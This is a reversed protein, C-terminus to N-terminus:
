APRCVLAPQGGDVNEVVHGIRGDPLVCVDGVATERAQRIREAHAWAAFAGPAIEPLAEDRGSPAPQQWTTVLLHLTGFFHM